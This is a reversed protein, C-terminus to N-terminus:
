RDWASVSMDRSSSLVRSLEAKFHFFDPLPPSSKVAKLTHSLLSLGTRPDLNEKVNAIYIGIALVDTM